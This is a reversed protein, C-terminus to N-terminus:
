VFGAKKAAVILTRDSEGAVNFNKKLRRKRIEIGSKSLPIEKMLEKNTSGFSLEELIKFDISDINNSKSQKKRLIQSVLNSHYVGGNLVRKIANMFERSSFDSKILFGEPSVSASISNLRLNEDHSTAIIIKVNPFIQRIKKGLDEGSAFGYQNSKPINIDLLILELINGLKLVQEYASGCDIAEFIQFKFENDGISMSNLANRYGDIAMPHDEIILTNINKSM